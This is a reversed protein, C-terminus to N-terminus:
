ATIRALEKALEAFVATAEEGSAFLKLTYTRKMEALEDKVKQTKEDYTKLEVPTYKQIDSGYFSGVQLKYKTSNYGSTTFQLGYKKIETDLREITNKAEQYEALLAHAKKNLVLSETM